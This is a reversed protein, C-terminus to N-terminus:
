NPTCAKEATTDFDEFERIDKVPQPGAGTMLMAKFEMVDMSVSSTSGDGQVKIEMMGTKNGEDVYGSKRANLHIALKSRIPSSPLIRHKYFDIM